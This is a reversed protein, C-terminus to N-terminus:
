TLERRGVRKSMHIDPQGFGNADPTVGTIAFGCRRYFSFAHGGRDEIHALHAIPDPYLDVGALSTLGVEDDSGLVLTMAGRDAVMREIDAVLARGIGSRQRVPDVVMPHLEWVRMYAHHAGIWGVIVGEIRAVRVIGMRLCEDVTDRAREITPWAAPALERFAVVLLEACRDRGSQDEVSLDDIEVHLNYWRPGTV